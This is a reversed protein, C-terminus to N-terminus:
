HSAVYNNRTTVPIKNKAKVGAKWSVSPKKELLVDSSALGIATRRSRERQIVSYKAPKPWVTEQGGDFFKFTWSNVDRDLKFMDSVYNERVYQCMTKLDNTDIHTGDERKLTVRGFVM